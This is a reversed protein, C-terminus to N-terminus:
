SGQVLMAGNPDLVRGGVTHGVKLALTHNEFSGQEQHQQVNPAKVYTLPGGQFGELFAIELWEVMNDYLVFDSGFVSSWLREYHPTFAGRLVNPVASRAATSLGEFEQTLIQSIADRIPTGYIIDTADFGYEIQNGDGDTFYRAGFAARALKMLAITPAGAGAGADTVRTLGNKIVNLVVKIETRLAGRGLSQAARQFAGVEDNKSMEWTYQIAKEYNGVRYGGESETFTAYTVDESEGRAELEGMESLRLTRVTKFDPVTTVSAFSRWNSMPGNYAPLLIRSRLNALALPLDSTTHTDSFRQARTLPRLADQVEDALNEAMREADADSMTARQTAADSFATAVATPGYYADAVARTGLELIVADTAAQASGQPILGRAEAVQFRLLLTRSM